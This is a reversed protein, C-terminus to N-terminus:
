GEFSQKMADLGQLEKVLHDLCTKMVPQHYDPHSDMCNLLMMMPEKCKESRIGAEEHLAMFSEKCPGGRMFESYRAEAEM